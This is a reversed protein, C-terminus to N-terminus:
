IEKEEGKSESSWMWKTDGDYDWVRGYIQRMVFALWLQEMTKFQWYYSNCKKYNALQVYLAIETMEKHMLMKQLDEQRPLWLMNRWWNEDENKSLIVIAFTEPFEWDGLHEAGENPHWVCDGDKPKWGKQIEKTSEELMKIYRPTKDVKSEKRGSFCDRM